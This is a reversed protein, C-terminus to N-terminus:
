VAVAQKLTQDFSEKFLGEIQRELRAVITAESFTHCDKLSGALKKRIEEYLADVKVKTSLDAPLVHACALLFAIGKTGFYDYVTDVVRRQRTDEDWTDTRVYKKEYGDLMREPKVGYGVFKQRSRQVEFRDKTFINFFAEIAELPDDPEDWYTEWEYKPDNYNPVMITTYRPVDEYVDKTRRVIIPETVDRSCSKTIQNSLANINNRRAQPINLKHGLAEVLLQTIAEVGAGLPQQKAGSSRPKQFAIGACSRVLAKKVETVYAMPTKEQQYRMLAEFLQGEKKGLRQGAATLLESMGEGTWCNVSVIYPVVHRGVDAQKYAEAIKAKADTINQPTAFKAQPKEKDVFENLVYLIKESGYYRVLDAMYAMDSRGLSQHSAVLYFVLAPQLAPAPLADVRIERTTRLAHTNYTALTVAQVQPWEPVQRMGLAVRNYNELKDDSSVGPLDVYELGAPFQIVNVQDTCDQHGTSPLFYDIGVLRNGLTSKGSGTKGTAVTRVSMTQLTTHEKLKEQIFHVRLAPISPRTFAVLM